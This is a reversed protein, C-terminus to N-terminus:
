IAVDGEKKFSVLIQLNSVIDLRGGRFTHFAQDAISFRHFTFKSYHQAEKKGAARSYTSQGGTLTSGRNDM